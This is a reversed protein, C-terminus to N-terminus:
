PPRAGCKMEPAEEWAWHISRCLLEPVLVRRNTPQRTSDGWKSEGRGGRGEKNEKRGRRKKM